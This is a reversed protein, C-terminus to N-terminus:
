AMWACPLASRTSRTTRSPSRRLVSIAWQLVADQKLYKWHTWAARIGKPIVRMGAIHDSHEHTILIADLGSPDEGSARLRRTLERCSLGADVLLRTTASSILASNGQSGSALVTVSAGM